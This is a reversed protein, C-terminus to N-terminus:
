GDMRAGLREKRRRLDDCGEGIEVGVGIGLEGEGKEAGDCRGEWGM